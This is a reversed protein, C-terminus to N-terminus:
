QNMLCLGYSPSTRVNELIRDELSESIYKMFEELGETNRYTTSTIVVGLNELLMCLEKYKSNALAERTIFLAARIMNIIASRYFDKPIKLFLSDKIVSSPTAKIHEQTKEHDALSRAAFRKSGKALANTFSKSKCYECHM